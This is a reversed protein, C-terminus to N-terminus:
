PISAGFQSGSGKSLKYNEKKRMGKRDIGPTDPRTTCNIHGFGGAYVGEELVTRNLICYTEEVNVASESGRAADTEGKTEGGRVVKGHGGGPGDGTM